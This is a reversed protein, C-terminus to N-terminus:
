VLMLVALLAASLSLSLWLKRKEMLSAERGQACSRLQQASARLLRCQEEVGCRGLVSGPRELARREEESLLLAKSQTMAAWQVSITETELAEVSIESLLGGIERGASSVAARLLEEMPPATLNLEREMCELALALAHLQRIHRRERRLQQSCMWVSGLLVGMCGLLSTM